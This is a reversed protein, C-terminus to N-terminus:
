HANILDMVIKNLRNKFNTYNFHKVVRDHGKNGMEVSLNEDVIFRLMANSFSNSNSECLLGTENDIITEKPGGSNIAIVPKKMYMAEIPVIGFHENEPTYLVATCQVLLDHKQQDSLNKLFTINKDMKLYRALQILEEYHEINEVNQNDYGGAIILHVSKDILGNKDYLIKLAQIALSLNKKREYRNISLFITKTDTLLRDINNSQYKDFNELNLCPYLIETSINALSKFTKHFIEDTFHSNVLIINAFGTTWEELYDIPYRYIKKLFSDRKTLLQDPFHCYFICKQKFLTLIPIGSSIQDCIVIDFQYNLIFYISLYIMRIFAWFAKLRGFTSRPIWDGLCIVNLQGNKTEDFCHNQDHHCTFITISHDCKKLALACDVILREAGGIGLDPHLFAISPM